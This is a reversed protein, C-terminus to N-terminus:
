CYPLCRYSCRSRILRLVPDFGAALGLAPSRVRMMAGCMTQRCGRRGIVQCVSFGLVWRRGPRHGANAGLRIDGRTPQDVGPKPFSSGIAVNPSTPPTTASRQEHGDWSPGWSVVATEDACSAEHTRQHPASGEDGHIVPSKVRHPSDPAPCSVGQRLRAFVPEPSRIATPTNPSTLDNCIHAPQASDRPSHLRRHEAARPLSAGARGNM